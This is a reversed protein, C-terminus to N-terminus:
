DGKSITSWKTNFYVGTPDSIKPNPFPPAIAPVEWVQDDDRTLRLRRHNQRVPAFFWSRQENEIRSEILLLIEPDTGDVLAFLAGDEVNNEPSKFRYIPTTLLRLERFRDDSDNEQIQGRFERIIKTMQLRRIASNSKPTPVNELSTFKVGSQNPKWVVVGDLEATLHDASLSQFTLRRNGAASSFRAYISLFAAPRGRDTWLYSDGYVEGIIPNSWKLLSGKKQQLERKATKNRLKLSSVTETAWQTVEAVRRSEQSEPKAEQGATARVIIGALILCTMISRPFMCAYPPIRM